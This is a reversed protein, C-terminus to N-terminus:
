SAAEVDDLAKIAYDWAYRGAPCDAGSTRSKILRLATEYREVAVLLADIDNPANAIFEMNEQPCNDGRPYPDGVECICGLSAAQFVGQGEPGCLEPILIWPPETIAARRAKIAEIDM